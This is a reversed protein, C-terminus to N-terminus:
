STVPAASSLVIKQVKMLLEVENRPLSLAAAINEATEGHSSMKLAQSRKSLNFGSRTAQPQVLVGTRENTERLEEALGQLKLILRQEAQTREKKHEEIQRLRM